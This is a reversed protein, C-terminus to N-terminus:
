LENVTRDGTGADRLHGVRHAGHRGRVVAEPNASPYSTTVTVLPFEIDPFLDVRLSNYATVGAILLIFIGLLTVSRKSIATGTIFRM